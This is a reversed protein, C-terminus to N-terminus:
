SHFGFKTGNWVAGIVYGVSDDAKRYTATIEIQKPDFWLTVKPYAGSAACWTALYGIAQTFEVYGVKEKLTDIDNPEFSDLKVERM